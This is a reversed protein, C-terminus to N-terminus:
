TGTNQHGVRTVYGAKIPAVSQVSGCQECGLFFVCDERTLITNPSKCDNCIVYENIYRHLIGEFIKPPFRGKVVLQQQRDFYGIAGMEALLFTMVDEAQRHMTKCLDMFNVFLTKKTGELLIQPPRMVTRHKDGALELNNERLMNFMRSLLEEYRYDRDTGELPNQSLAFEEGGGEGDSDSEPDVNEDHLFNLTRKKKKKKNKKSSSEAGDVLTLNVTQDSLNDVFDDSEDQPQVKKKKKKKKGTPDFSATESIDEKVEVFM